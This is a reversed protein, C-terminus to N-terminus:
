VVASDSIRKSLSRQAVTSSLAEFEFSCYSSAISRRRSLATTGSYARRRVIHAPWTSWYRSEAESRVLGDSSRFVFRLSM